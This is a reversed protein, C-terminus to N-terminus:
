TGPPPDAFDAPRTRGYALIDPIRAPDIGRWFVTWPEGRQRGEAQREYWGNVPNGTRSRWFLAPHAATVASWLEQAVGEGRAETGVAFKSLYRGAPHAELLAAGRYQEELHLDCTDSLTEPRALPRGFAEVLLARLRDMDVGELGRVHRLVSGRRVITGRGRVTFMEHLLDLPSAISIHLAPCADLCAEAFALAAADGPAPPTEHRRLWVYPVLRHHEDHLGGAARLLHLRRILGPVLRAVIREAPVAGGRVALVTGRARARRLAQEVEAPWGDEDLADTWEADPLARAFLAARAEAEDGALLVMPTLELRLLFQLDFAMVGASQELSPRDPLIAAFCGGPEAHFKRLYFEYEERRGIGDLFLRLTTSLLM